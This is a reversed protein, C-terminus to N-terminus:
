VWENKKYMEFGSKLTDKIQQLLENNTKKLHFCSKGKLLKMLEPKILKKMEPHTYVPMFYFGVYNSQVVLSAFFM